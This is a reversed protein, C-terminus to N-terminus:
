KQSAVALSELISLLAAQSNAVREFKIKRKDVFKMLNDLSLNQTSTSQGFNNLLKIYESIYRSARHLFIESRELNTLMVQIKEFDGAQIQKGKKNLMSILKNLTDTLILHTYKPPGLNHEPINFAGGGVQGSYLIQQPINVLLNNRQNNQMNLITRYLNEIDALSISDTPYEYNHPYNPKMIKSLYTGKYIDPRMINNIGRLGILDENLLAPNTNVFTILKCIYTTLSQNSRIATIVDSSLPDDCNRLSDIWEDYDCLEEIKKGFYAHFITKRPIKLATATALIFKSPMTKIEKDMMFKTSTDRLFAACKKIDKGMLCDKIYETCKFNDTTADLGASNCSNNQIEKAFSENNVIERVGNVIKFLQGTHDRSYMQATKTSENWFLTSPTNDEEISIRYVFENTNYSMWKKSSMTNVKNDRLATIIEDRLSLYTNFTNNPLNYPINRGIFIDRKVFGSTLGSTTFLVDMFNNKLEINTLNSWDDMLPTPATLEFLGRILEKIVINKPNSGVNKKLKKLADIREPKNKTSNMYLIIDILLNAVEPHIAM